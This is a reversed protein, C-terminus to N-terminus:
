NPNLRGESAAKAIIQPLSFKPNLAYALKELDPFKGSVLGSDMSLSKLVWTSFTGGRSLKTDPFKVGRSTALKGLRAMVYKSSNAMPNEPHDPHFTIYPANNIVEESLLIHFINDDLNTLAIKGLLYKLISFLRNGSTGVLFRNRASEALGCIVDPIALLLMPMKMDCFTSITSLLTPSFESQKMGMANLLMTTVGREKNKFRHLSGHLIYEFHIITVIDNYYNRADERGLERDQQANCYVKFIERGGTARLMFYLFIDGVKNAAVDLFSDLDGMPGSDTTALSISGKRAAFVGPNLREQGYKIAATDYRLSSICVFSGSDYCESVVPM